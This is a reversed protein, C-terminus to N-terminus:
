RRWRIAFYGGVAGGLIHAFQAIADRAVIGLYIERGIFLVCVLIFSIPIAGSVARTYSSLIIFAFIVGSAGLLSGPFVLMPLATVFATVLTVVLLKRWGHKEDLLPGVLLLITLNYILHEPTAHGLVHLFMRAYSLPNAWSMGEGVSFLWHTSGGGTVVKLLLVGVCAGAFSLTFPANYSVKISRPVSGVRRGPLYSAVTQLPSRVLSPSLLVLSPSLLYARHEKSFRLPM